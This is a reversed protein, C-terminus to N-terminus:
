YSGRFYSRAENGLASQIATGNNRIANLSRQRMTYGPKSMDFYGSGFRGSSEYAGAMQRTTHESSANILTSGIQVAALGLGWGGALEYFAMSGISKAISVAQSSGEQRAAKYDSVGQSVNFADFALPVVGISKVANVAQSVGIM